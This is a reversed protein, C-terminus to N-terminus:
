SPQAFAAIRERLIKAYEMMHHFQQGMRSQEAAPLGSFEKSTLFAELKHCKEHLAIEEDVVRQQFAEM